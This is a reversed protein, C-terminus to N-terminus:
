FVVDGRSFVPDRGIDGLLSQKHIAGLMMYGLIRLGECFVIVLFLASYILLLGKRLKGQQEWSATVM